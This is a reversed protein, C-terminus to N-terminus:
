PSPLTIPLMTTTCCGLTQMGLEETLIDHVTRHNLNLESGIIRVTLRQDFRMFAMVKTVNEETKSMCPRESRPEDEVSERGHWFAKPV